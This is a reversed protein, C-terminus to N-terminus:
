HKDEKIIYSNKLFWFAVSVYIPNISLQVTVALTPNPIYQCTFQIHITACLLVMFKVIIMVTTFRHLKNRQFITPKMKNKLMSTEGGKENKTIESIQLQRHNSNAALLLIM